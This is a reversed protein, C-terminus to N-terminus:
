DGCAGYTIEDKGDGDVDGITLSHAGQGRYSTNSPTAPTSPGACRSRATAGTGPPLIPARTIVGASSRAPGSATSYAVGALFRDLRNGYHRGLRYQPASAHHNDNNNDPDRKPFYTATAMEEGTLRQVRHPIGTRGARLWEDRRQSQQLSLRGHRQLFSAPRQREAVEGRQRRLQGLGDMSGPATRCMVEAKGDGDFDYVM